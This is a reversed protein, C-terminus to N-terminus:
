TVSQKYTQFGADPKMYTCNCSPCQTPTNCKDTFVVKFWHVRGVNIEYASPVVQRIFVASISQEAVVVVVVVGGVVVVVVTGIVVVVVVVGGVVVVVM